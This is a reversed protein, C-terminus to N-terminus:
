KARWAVEYNLGHRLLVFLFQADDKASRLGEM